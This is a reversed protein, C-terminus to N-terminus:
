MGNMSLRRRTLFYGLWFGAAILWYVAALWPTSVLIPLDISEDEIRISFPILTFLIAGALFWTQTKILRKLRNLMQKEQDAKFTVPQKLLETSRAGKVLAALEPDDELFEEVLAKTEASAEGALYVPLLDNVVDRTVEM